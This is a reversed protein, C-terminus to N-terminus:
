VTRRRRVAVGFLLALGALAASPTPIVSADADGAVAEAAQEGLSGSFGSLTGSLSQGNSFDVQITSGVLGAGTVTSTGSTPTEDVDIVFNFAEGANFDAFNLSFSQAGDAVPQITEGVSDSQRSTDVQLPKFESVGATDFFKGAPAINFTFGTIDVDSTSTNKLIFPDSFTDGGFAIGQLEFFTDRGISFDFGFNAHADAALGLGAAALAFAFPTHRLNM